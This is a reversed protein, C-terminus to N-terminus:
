VVDVYIGGHRNLNQNDIRLGLLFNVRLEERCSGEAYESHTSKLMRVQFGGDGFAYESDM